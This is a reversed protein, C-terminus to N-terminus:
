RPRGRTEDPTGAPALVEALLEIAASTAAARVAARDGDFRHSAVRVGAPGAVGVHVTGVPKGDQPAPGAVGTTALGYTAGLRARVGAAMAAAVDPDVAGRSALLDEPVGLLLAKLPTAYAVVGGRFVTSAGAVDTLAAALLGGTLSEAAAVTAGSRRLWEHLEGVLRDLHQTV